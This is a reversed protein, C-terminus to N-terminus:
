NTYQKWMDAVYTDSAMMDLTQIRCDTCGHITTLQRVVDEAAALTTCTTHLLTEDSAAPPKGWIPYEFRPTPSQTM